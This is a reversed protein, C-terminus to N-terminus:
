RGGRGPRTAVLSRVQAADAGGVPFIFAPACPAQLVTLRGPERNPLITASPGRLPPLASRPDRLAILYPGPPMTPPERFTSADWTAVLRRGAQGALVEDVLITFRAYDGIVGDHAENPYLRRLRERGAEDPIIAYDAIRGVVVLDAFRVDGPDLRAAMRCAQAPAAAALLALLALAAKM